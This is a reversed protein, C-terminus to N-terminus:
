SYFGRFEEFGSHGAYQGVITQEFRELIRMYNAVWSQTCTRLDIAFHSAIHVEFGDKEAQELSDILWRLQGAADIPDLLLWYNLRSCYNSNIVMLM